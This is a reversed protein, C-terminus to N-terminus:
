SGRTFRAAFLDVDLTEGESSYGFRMAFPGPAAPSQVFPQQLRYRSIPTVVRTGDAAQHVVASVLTRVPRVETWDGHERIEFHGTEVTWAVPGAVHALHGTRLVEVLLDAPTADDPLQWAHEHSVVDDGMAVSERDTWVTIM